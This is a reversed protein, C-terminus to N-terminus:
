MYEPLGFAALAPADLALGANLTSTVKENKDFTKFWDFTVPMAALKGKGKIKLSANSVSLDMPGGTLDMGAVVDKLFVDKLKADAEVQVDNIALAHHIPFKFSVDVDAQGKVEGSKIGLMAPYGLPKSDLVQLATRLPGT